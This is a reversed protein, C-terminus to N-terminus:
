NLSVKPLFRLFNKNGDLYAAFGKRDKFHFRYIEGSVYVDLFQHDTHQNIAAQYDKFEEERTKM